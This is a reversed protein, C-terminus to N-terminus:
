QALAGRRGTGGARSCSRRSRRARTGRRPTAASRRAGSGQRGASPRPRDSRERRQVGVALAPSLAGILMAGLALLALMRKM